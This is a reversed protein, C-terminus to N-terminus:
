SLNLAHLTDPHFELGHAIISFWDSKLFALCEHRYNAKQIDEACLHVIAAALALEPERYKDLLTPPHIQWWTGRPTRRNQPSEVLLFDFPEKTM